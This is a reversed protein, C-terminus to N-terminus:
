KLGGTTWGGPALAERSELAELEEPTIGLELCRAQRQRDIQLGRTAGCTAQTVALSSLGVLSLVGGTLGTAFLKLVTSLPAAPEQSPRLPLAGPQPAGADLTQLTPPLEDSKM